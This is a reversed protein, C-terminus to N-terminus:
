VPVSTTNIKWKTILWSLLFPVVFKFLIMAGILVSYLDSHILGKEFLLKIVVVSTSFKVCLGIGLLISKRPGLEKKGAVYSSMIKSIKSVAMVLLVLLPFKFIYHVNTEAGVWLFFIPAFFGYALTKVHSEIVKEKGPLINRVAIGALLAGLPAADVYSGIGVLLFIMFLVFVFFSPIDRYKFVKFKNKLRVFVFVFGFLCSLILINTGATFLESQVTSSILISTIIITIVEIVDDLVGIGLITQGLKTKTLKFEDLIPILAAEGVTAFSTAVLFAIMWGTGFFFHILLGGFFAETLIILLTSKYIFRGSELIRKIHMEFGIIFLLFYLGLNALFVFSPSSLVSDFPNYAALGFGVLLSAFVWPIRIRELVRGILFTALFVGALFLMLEM